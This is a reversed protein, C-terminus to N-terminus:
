MVGHPLQSSSNKSYWMPHLFVHFRGISNSKQKFYLKRSNLYTQSFLTPGFQCEGVPGYICSSCQYIRVCKGTLLACVYICTVFFRAWLMWADGRGSLGAGVVVDRERAVHSVSVISGSSIGCGKGIGIKDQKSRARALRLALSASVSVM